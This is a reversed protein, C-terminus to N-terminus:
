INKMDNLANFIASAFRIRKGDLTIGLHLIDYILDHRCFNVSLEDDFQEDINLKSLINEIKEQAKEVKKTNEFYIDEDFIDIGAKKNIVGEAINEAVCEIIGNIGCHNYLKRFAAKCFLDENDEVNLGTVLYKYLVDNIVANYIMTNFESSSTPLNFVKNM